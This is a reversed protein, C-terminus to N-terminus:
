QITSSASALSLGVLAKPSRSSGKTAATPALSPLFVVRQTTPDYHVQEGSKLTLYPRKGAICEHYHLKCVRLHKPTLVDCGAVLCSAQVKRNPTGKNHRKDASTILAPTTNMPAAYPVLASSFVPDSQAVLGRVKVPHVATQLLDDAQIAECRLRLYKCAKEFTIKGTVQKGQIQSYVSALFREHRIASLLYNIKQTDHLVMAAQGPVSELDEFLEHLRLVMESPSEDPKFRFNSIEGLLIAAAAPGSLAYGDYLQLYAEHGNWLAAKKVYKAAVSSAAVADELIYYVLKNAEQQALTLTQQLFSDEIVHDLM